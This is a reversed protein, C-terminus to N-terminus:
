YNNMGSREYAPLLSDVILSYTKGDLVGNLRMKTLEAYTPNNYMRLLYDAHAKRQQLRNLKEIRGLLHRLTWTNFGGHSYKPLKADSWRNHNEILDNINKEAQEIRAELRSKM